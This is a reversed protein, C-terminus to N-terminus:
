TADLATAYQLSRGTLYIHDKNVLIKVLIKALGGIHERIARSTINYIDMYLSKLRSIGEDYKDALAYALLTMLAVQSTYTKTSLVCIEPVANM